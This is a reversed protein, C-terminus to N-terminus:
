QAYVDHRAMPFEGMALRLQPGIEIGELPFKERLVTKHPVLGEKIASDSEVFVASMRKLGVGNAVQPPLTHGHNALSEGVCRDGIGATKNGIPGETDTFVFEGFQHCHDARLFFGSRHHQQRVVAHIHIQLESRPHGTDVKNEPAM